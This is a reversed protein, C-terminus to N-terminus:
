AALAFLLFGAGVAALTGGAVKPLALSPTHSAAYRAAAYGCLAIAFQILTFGALYALLPTAEAGIIAEGYAYGHAVGSLGFLAIAMKGTLWASRRFLLVGLLILSAAVGADAYPVSLTLLHALTGALAGALFM